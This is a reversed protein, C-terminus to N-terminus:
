RNTLHQLRTAKSASSLLHGLQLRDLCCNGLFGAVEVTGM